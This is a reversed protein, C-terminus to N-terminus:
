GRRSVAIFGIAGLAAVLLALAGSGLAPIESAPVLVIASTSRNNAPNPDFTTSAVIATNSLTMGFPPNGPMITLIIPPAAGVALLPRTCVVIFTEDECSWGSGSASVFRTGPALLDTVIIGVADSPGANTVTLTHTFPFLGFATVTSTTNAVDLDTVAVVTVNTATNDTLDPDPSSSSVKAVNTLTAPSSPATVGIGIPPAVGLPLSAATCTVTGAAQGCTWGSGAPPSFLTLGPPLADTVTVNAATSPGANTVALVYGFTRGPEVVGAAVSAKVISLGTSAVFPWVAGHNNDDGNWGVLATKADASLAVSTGQFPSDSGELTMLLTWMGGSRTWIAAGGVGGAPGGIIATDGDASLAVARGQRSAAGTAVLKGGQQTWVGGSRTWVWTAGKFSDDLCGGVLATNGDDSLDVAIGQESGGVGGSGVLKSGQQTWVGASRTWVWAAGIGTSDIPGGAIATNGDASLAVSSGLNATGAVGSGVLKPGQQSWVGGSRTWFWVAGVGHNDDRGGIMATNGDASLAVAIGQQPSGIGGSGVLKPGQQTWVGGSRTWVWAAGQTNDSANGILATNGDASLAVSFQSILNVGDNVLLRTGQQSWTGGSRIWVFAADGGVIATNGDASLAVSTGQEDAPDIAVLKPGQQAFQALAGPSAALAAALAVAATSLKM